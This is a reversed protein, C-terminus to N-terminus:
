QILCLICSRESHNKKKKKEIKEILTLVEPTILEGPALLVIGPPYEAILEASVQGICDKLPLQITDYQRAEQPTFIVKPLTPFINPQDSNIQMAKDFNSKSLRAFALSQVARKLRTFGKDTDAVSTMALLFNAQAMEMQVKYTSAFINSIYEANHITTNFLLKSPDIDYISFEGKKAKYLYLPARSNPVSGRFKELRTIYEDFLYPHEWLMKLMYDSTAMLIYSPSSTQMANIYFQLRNYDVLKGQAHIVACQSLAPLTKHLSNIVIDAGQSLANAPFSKHFPFHAGHAEDVILIGNRAHVNDAITKIDSVFGEYTPSVVLVTAGYPIDIYNNPNIGGALGNPKIEPMVYIPTAGSLVLGNYVSVHANRPIVIPSDKKHTACACIAAVIGASSGNVLFYSKFAGYFEAMRQQMDLLIGTPMSLVDMDPIETMDLSLLNKPMFSPNRKHGPMHFPYIDQKLYDKIKTYM